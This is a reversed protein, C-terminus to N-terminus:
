RNNEYIKRTVADHHPVSSGRGIARNWWRRGFYAAVVLAVVGILIIWLTTSM